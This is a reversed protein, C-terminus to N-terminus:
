EYIVQARMDRQFIPFFKKDLENDADDCVMSQHASVFERNVELRNAKLTYTANYQTGKDSYKVNDPVHTIKINTPFEIEYHNSYTFSHCDEPFNVKDKPKSYMNGTIVEFALGAPIPMAAPGPFNSVPDLTFVANLEFPTDLDSPNSSHIEGVGTLNVESLKRNVIEVQPLDQNSFQENRLSFDMSGLVATQSSGQITGDPM